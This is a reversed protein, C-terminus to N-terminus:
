NESGKSYSLIELTYKTAIGVVNQEATEEINLYVTEQPSIPAVVRVTKGKSDEVVRECVEINENGVKTIKNIGGNNFCKTLVENFWQELGSLSYSIEGVMYKSSGDDLWRDEVVVTDNKIERVTYRVTGTTIKGEENKVFKHLSTDGVYVKPKAFAPAAMCISFLFIFITKM